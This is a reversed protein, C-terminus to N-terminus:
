QHYVGGEDTTIQEVESLDALNHIDKISISGTLFPKPLNKQETTEGWPGVTSLVELDSNAGIKREAEESSVDRKMIVVVPIKKDQSIEKNEIMARLKDSIKKSM